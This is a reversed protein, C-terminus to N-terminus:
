DLSNILEILTEVALEENEGNASITITTGCSLNLKQLDFIRKACAEKGNSMIKIDCTFKKAQEVVRASPRTHIGNKAAITLEKTYM